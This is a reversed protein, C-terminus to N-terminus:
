YVLYVFTNFLTLFFSNLFKLKDIINIINSLRKIFTPIPETHIVTSHCFPSCPIPDIILVIKNLLLVNIIKNEINGYVTVKSELFKYNWSFISM